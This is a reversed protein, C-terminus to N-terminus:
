LADDGGGVKQMDSQFTGVMGEVFQGVSVGKELALRKVEEYVHDPVLIAKLGVRYSVLHLIDEMEGLERAVDAVDMRALLAIGSVIAARTRRQPQSNRARIKSITTENIRSAFAIERMSLGLRGALAWLREYYNM